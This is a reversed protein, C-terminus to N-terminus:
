LKFGDIKPYVAPDTGLLVAKEGAISTATQPSFLSLVFVLM